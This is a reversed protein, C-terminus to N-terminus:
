LTGAVLSAAGNGTCDFKITTDAGTSALFSVLNAVTDKAATSDTFAGVPTDLVVYASTPVVKTADVNSTTHYDVRIVSRRRRNFGSGTESHKVTLRHPASPSENKKGFVTSRDNISLREFEVEVGGSTKVENTVLTDSLM